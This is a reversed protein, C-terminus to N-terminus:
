RQFVPSRRAHKFKMKDLGRLVNKVMLSDCAGYKLFNSRGQRLTMHNPGSHEDMDNFDIGDDEWFCIPCIEFDGRTELTFYDCCPCQLEGGNPEARKWEGSEEMEDIRKLENEFEKDFVGKSNDISNGCGFLLAMIVVSVLNKM